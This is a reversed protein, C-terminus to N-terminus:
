GCARRLDASLDGRREVELGDLGLWGAMSRLEEALAASVAVHDVGEEAHAARVLLKGAARDAKLDVRAVLEEGLLFPLVYYGYIRKPPPTYLELVYRFGFLRETRDRPRGAGAPQQAWVLSDFPSLLARAQVGRPIRAEPHLYAAARWGEVEVPELEGSEALEHLVKRSETLGLRYYDAIDGATGVGLSRAAMLLMRRHAEHPPPAPAEYFRRPIVRETLDYVRTFAPRARTTILGRNFLYELAIKGDSWGWWSGSRDGPASLRGVSLPGKERVQALVADVYDQREAAWEEIRWRRASEMRHRFLPFDEVPILSAEHGWYEFLRRKRYAYADLLERPYPGLRSFAPMYHARVLVNVSDLQLLGVRRMLRNLHAATVAGNPHPDAFGQAALAIRRARAISLKRLPRSM